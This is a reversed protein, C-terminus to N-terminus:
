EGFYPVRTFGHGEFHNLGISQLFATREKETSLTCFTNYDEQMQEADRLCLDCLLESNGDLFSVAAPYDESKQNVDCERCFCAASVSKKFGCCLAAAPFDASLCVAWGRVFVGKEQRLNSGPLPVHIGDNLATMASGFSSDGPLGSLVQGIGYYDIDYTFAVTMLHLNHFAMRVSPDINVLAWYFMGLKHKGHFAGLPNVVELDDYYLIFALRLSGDTCDAHIGLEPHNQMIAGDPLDAYVYRSSGAEPREKRWAEAATRMQAVVEPDTAFMHQLEKPMPIDYVFDGSRPGTRKGNADPQDILERRVPDVPKILKRLKTRENKATGIGRHM